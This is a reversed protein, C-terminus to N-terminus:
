TSSLMLLGTLFAASDIEAILERESQTTSHEWRRTSVTPLSYVTRVPFEPLRLGLSATNKEVTRVHLPNTFRARRHDVAVDWLVLNEGCGACAFVDSWITYQITAPGKCRDCVTGYLWTFEDKVSAALGLM